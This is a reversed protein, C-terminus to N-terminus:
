VEQGMDVRIVQYSEAVVERTVDDARMIRFPHEQLELSFLGSLM